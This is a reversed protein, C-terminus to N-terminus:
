LSEHLPLTTAFDEAALRLRESGATLNQALSLAPDRIEVIPGFVDSLAPDDLSGCFAATKKHHLKALAIVGSPGKGALSQHDLRGEGTIVLDAWQVAKELALVESVLDFGPVLTADLFIIAGFGLGGAAGSGPLHSAAESKTGTLSVLHALRKEHGEMAEPTIGKQPGYVRTCGHPGLLPNTVDCAVTVKPFNRSLPAEITVIQLLQEPLDTCTAGTQDLFRYGLALAMGVGGDNTASGGIGLIIKECGRKIAELILEGTGRTTARQPDNASEGLLALGSSTAMEIVATRGDDILAFSARVPTGLPGTVEAEHWTGGAADCLTRAIGDGGDAIPLCRIEHDLSPCRSDFGSTFGAALGSALGSSIAHCAEAATLSGKFKDSAVLIKM